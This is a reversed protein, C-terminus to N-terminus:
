NESPKEAHDIVLIEVPGKAADLKLGLQEQIAALISPAPNTPADDAAFELRFDFDAHIGTHDIVPRGLHGSLQEIFVPMSAKRGELVSTVADQDIPGTRSTRIFSEEGSQPQKLKSGSKAVTLAFVPGERTERHVKLKFRDALLTQLMAMMRERSPDGAAKADIDFREADLWGPGGSIQYRAVGYAQRILTVLPQNTVTLRGGPAIRFDKGRARDIAPKVSAVEFAPATASPQGSAACAALVALIAGRITPIMQPGICYLREFSRIRRSCKPFRQTQQGPRDAGTDPM